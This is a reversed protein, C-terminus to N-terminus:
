SYFLIHLYSQFSVLSLWVQLPWVIAFALRMWNHDIYIEIAIQMAGSGTAALLLMMTLSVSIPQWLVLPRATAVDAELDSAGDSSVETAVVSVGSKASSVAHYISEDEWVM